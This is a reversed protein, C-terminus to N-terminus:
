QMVAISRSASIGVNTALSRLGAGRGRKEGAAPTRFLLRISRPTAM